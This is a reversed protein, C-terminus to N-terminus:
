AEKPREILRAVRWCKNKSLPRTQVIEVRDGIKYQNQADHAMFKVRKTVRKHFTPDQVRRQVMVVVTNQMKDSTVVGIIARRRGRKRTTTTQTETEQAAM